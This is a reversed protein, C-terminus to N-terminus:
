SKNKESHEVALKAEVLGCSYKERYNIMDKIRDETLDALPRNNVRVQSRIKTENYVLSSIKSLEEDSLQSIESQNM